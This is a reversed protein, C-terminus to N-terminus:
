RGAPLPNPAPGPTASPQIPSRPAPQPAVSTNPPAPLSRAPPAADTFTATYSADASGITIDHQRAGGDSWGYFGQSSATSITRVSGPYTTLTVPTNYATGSYVVQGGAPATNLTLHVTKPYISVSTTGTLGTSNIATLIIEYYVNDGHDPITFSGGTDAITLYNHTHCVGGPCHHQVVQWTLQPGPISGDVPDTASGSFNITDGIAYTLSPAPATIRPTPPTGVRIEIVSTPPTNGSGDYVFLVPDYVGPRTYQHTPNAETTGPTGDDF